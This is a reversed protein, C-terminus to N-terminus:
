LVFCSIELFNYFDFTKLKPGNKLLKKTSYLFLQAQFKDLNKYNSLLEFM